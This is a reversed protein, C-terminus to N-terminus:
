KKKNKHQFAITISTEDIYEQENEQMNYQYCNKNIEDKYEIIQENTLSKNLDLDFLYNLANIKYFVDKQENYILIVDKEVIQKNGNVYKIINGKYIINQNYKNM